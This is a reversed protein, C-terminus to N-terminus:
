RARLRGTNDVFFKDGSVTCTFTEGDIPQLPLGSKGIWKVFKAPVGAVLAHDPVDSVVVSGAAVMAWCGIEIPAVCISGAGISAGQRVIVAATEWDIQKKISMDPNVARPYKDNTFTVGPGIFVGNEIIAPDYILAGNQIKSNEGISVQPGIYVREGIVVSNGVSVGERIHSHAWVQSGRGLKASSDVMATDHVFLGQVEGM